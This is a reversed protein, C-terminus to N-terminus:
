SPSEKPSSTPIAVFTDPPLDFGLSAAQPRDYVGSLLLIGDPALLDRAGGNIRLRKMPDKQDHLLAEVVTRHIIRGVHARFFAAARVAGGQVLRLSRFAAMDIGDWRSLPLPVAKVLWLISDRGHKNIGRKLDRNPASLFAERAVLLGLSCHGKGHAAAILIVPEANRYTEPPIMWTSAITNKIDVDLGDLSVDRLGKPLDILDRFFHEVKLGIFTKEVNDLDALRTRATRVPDLVFELAEMVIQPMADRLADEGGAREFIVARVRQLLAADDQATGVQDAV